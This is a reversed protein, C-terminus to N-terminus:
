AFTERIIRELRHRYTHEALARRAGAERIPRAETPFRTFRDISALLEDWNRFSVVERGPEFCDPIIPRDEILQLAGAGAIEFARCNLSNGEAFSTTNLVALGAGFVRSKEDGIVYQGRHLKKVEPAAWPPPSSGYLALAVGASHLRTVLRQRFAYYNGALIVDNNVQESIPRHWSPNMAEHLLRADTGVLQLKRVADPDKIYVLDWYPNALGWRQSNAPPDGWWLIRRGRCLSGLEDLITPHIDWTLSLLLDPRFSKARRLLRVDEQRPGDGLVRSKLVRLAYRPLSWYKAFEVPEESSVEHGMQQLTLHVNDVFSDEFRPGALLVRM